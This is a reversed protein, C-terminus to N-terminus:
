VGDVRMAQTGDSKIHNLDDTDFTRGEMLEYAGHMAQSTLAAFEANRPIGYTICIAEPRKIALGFGDVKFGISQRQDIPDAVGSSGLAKVIIKPADSVGEVALKVIAEAGFLIGRHISTTFRM